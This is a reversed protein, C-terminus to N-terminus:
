ALSSAMPQRGFLYNEATNDLIYFAQEDGWSLLPIGPFHFTTIFLGLLMKYRGDIISPWRFVDQNSVGWMHRPDFLGTNANVLDDTLLYGRQGQWMDVFNFRRSGSPLQLHGDMGLFVVMARYLGYHFAASDLASDKTKRLFKSDKTRNTALSLAEEANAPVMDPQRVRGLYVSSLEAENM